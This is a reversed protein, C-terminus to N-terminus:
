ALTVTAGVFEVSFAECWVLVTWPGVLDLGTRLEYTQDGVNGRLKGLDVAGEGVDRRDAGPVLYLRLDPGNDIDFNELRLVHGGEPLRFVGADGTGDHGALGVFQGAGLLVPGAAAPASSGASGSAAPATSTPAAGPAAPPSTAASSAASSSAAPSSAGASSTAPSAADAISVSFTDDVTSDVFYPSLLWVNVVVFPVGLVVLRILPAVRLGLMAVLVVAAALTGGVTFAIARGSAFPARLIDPEVAVLGALVVAAVAAVVLELRSIRQLVHRAHRPLGDAAFTSPTPM